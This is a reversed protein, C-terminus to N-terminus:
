RAAAKRLTLIAQRQLVRGILAGTIFRLIMAGHEQWTAASFDSWGMRSLDFVITLVSVGVATVALGTWFNAWSRAEEMRQTKDIIM